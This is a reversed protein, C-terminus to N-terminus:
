YQAEIRLKLTMLIFISNQKRGSSQEVGIFLPSKNLKVDLLMDWLIKVKNDLEVEDLVSTNDIFEYKVEVNKLNSISAACKWRQHHIVSCSINITNVM